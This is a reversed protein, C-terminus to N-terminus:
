TNVRAPEYGTLGSSKGTAKANAGDGSLWLLVPAAIYISSFTGIIVGVLLTFAFGHIGEGGGIYLILLVILTTGATLLTRSLTQNVALNLMDATLHPSKGRIERLRDFTVITDNLSYGILTLFAAVIPLDIKFAGILLFGLFNAVYASLALVSLTILVDHITAM